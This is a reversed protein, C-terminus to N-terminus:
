DEIKKRRNQIYGDRMSTYPDLAAEKFAEYDGIKLSTNNVVKSATIALSDRTPEVYSVPNLFYGGAMGFTDRVTSPGLIPWVIYFGEGIGWKGFAQGIDEESPDLDPSLKAPNGFGLVGFTSNIAFRAFEAEAKQGDGQLVCGVFRIPFGLNYFFNGIGTRMTKPLVTKYATSVPKLLWFYLKDNFHFMAKNWYFFPDSVEVVEEEEEEDDLDDFLDLEDSPVEEQEDQPELAPKDEAQSGIVAVDLAASSSPASQKHACGIFLVPLVTFLLLLTKV